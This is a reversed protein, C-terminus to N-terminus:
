HPQMAALAARARERALNWAAPDGASNDHRLEDGFTVLAAEVQRRDTDALYPLAAVLAPVADADLSGLYAIDQAVQGGPPVLSPQLARDLNRDTVFAQPGVINIGLFVAVGAAAVAHPLWRSQDRAVLWAAAAFGAALFVISALVYFRLETWGYADQYLRLRLFSSALIVASLAVLLLLTAVYSSRREAVTAELGAIVLGALFGVALLEFFGRRAYNAYTVGSAALTDLGGFLYALQLVVFAGFLLDLGVLITLAETAGLRPWPMAPNAAAAGVSRAAFSTNGLAVLWLLGAAIWTTFTVLLLRHPLDGLDPSIHLIRNAVSSFIPDASAFLAAFVVFLPLGFVLGRGVPALRPMERTVRRGIGLGRLWGAAAIAGVSAAVTVRAALAIGANFSSRVVAAGAFAAVSAGCLLITALVDLQVLARDARIAVFAAFVVAALPLWLDLSDMRRGSPRVAFAAGLFAMTMLPVNLGLAHRDLLIEALLGVGLALVLARALLSQSPV